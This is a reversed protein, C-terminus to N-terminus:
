RGTGMCSGACLLHEPFHLSQPGHGEPCVSAGPGPFPFLLFCLEDQGCNSNSALQTGVTHETSHQTSMM